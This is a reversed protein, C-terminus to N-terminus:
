VHVNHQSLTQVMVGISKYEIADQKTTIQRYITNEEFIYTDSKFYEPLNNIINSFLTKGM